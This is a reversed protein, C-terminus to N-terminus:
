TWTDGFYAAVDDGSEGDTRGGIPGTRAQVAARLETYYTERDQPEAPLASSNSSVVSV